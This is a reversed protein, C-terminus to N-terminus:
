GAVITEAGDTEVYFSYFFLIIFIDIKSLYEYEFCRVAYHSTKQIVILSSSCILSSM